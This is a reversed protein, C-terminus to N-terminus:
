EALLEMVLELDKELVDAIFEPTMGKKHMKQINDLLTERVGEEKGESHGELRGEIRGEEVMDEFAQCMDYVEQIGQKEILQEYYKEGDSLTLWTQCTEADLFRYRNNSHILEKIKDKNSNCQLLELFERLEGRFLQSDLKKIPILNIKEDNVYKEIGDYGEPFQLLEKLSVHTNWEEDGYYCVFTIVPILKEDKKMKSLFEASTGKQKQTIYQKRIDAYQNEYSIADYLKTRIPMAYHIEMQNEIAIIAYEVGDVLKRSIDREKKIWVDHETDNVSVVSDMEQVMDSRIKVNGQFLIGNLFDGFREKDGLYKRLLIDKKGM